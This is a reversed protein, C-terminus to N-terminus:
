KKGVESSKWDSLSYKCYYLNLKIIHEKLLHIDSELRDKTAEINGLLKTLEEDGKKEKKKKKFLMKDM